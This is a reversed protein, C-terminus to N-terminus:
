KSFMWKEWALSCFYTQRMILGGCLRMEQGSKVRVLCILTQKVCEGWNKRGRGKGKVGAVELNRCASVWDKESRQELHGRWRLRGHRVVDAM